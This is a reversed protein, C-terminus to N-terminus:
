LKGSHERVLLQGLMPGQMQRQRRRQRESGVLSCGPKCAEPLSLCSMQQKGPFVVSLIQPLYPATQITQAEAPCHQLKRRTVAKQGVPIALSVKVLDGGPVGEREFSCDLQM